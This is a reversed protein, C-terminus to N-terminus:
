IRPLGILLALSDWVVIKSEPDLNITHLTFGPITYDLKEREKSNKPKVECIAIVSPKEQEIRKVLETKKSPTLQDANTFMVNLAPASSSVLGKKRVHAPAQM